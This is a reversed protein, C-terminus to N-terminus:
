GRREGRSVTSQMRGDVLLETMLVIISCSRCPSGVNIDNKSVSALGASYGSYGEPYLAGNNEIGFILFKTTIPTAIEKDKGTELRDKRSLYM